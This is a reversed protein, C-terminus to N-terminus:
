PHPQSLSAPPAEPLCRSEKGARNGPQHSPSPICPHGLRDLHTLRRTSACVARCICVCGPEQVRDTGLWREAAGTAKATPHQHRMEPWSLGQCKKLVPPGAICVRPRRSGAQAWSTLAWSRGQPPAKLPTPKNCLSIVPHGEPQTSFHHKCVSFCRKNFWKELNM